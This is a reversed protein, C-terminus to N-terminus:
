TIEGYRQLLQHIFMAVTLSTHTRTKALGSQWPLRDPRLSLTPADVQVGVVKNPSRWLALHSVPPNSYFSLGTGGLLHSSSHTWQDHSIRHIPFNGYLPVGWGDVAVLASVKGGLSQWERAAGICAVVGASFGIFLLAETKTIQKPHISTQLFLCLHKPSYAPLAPSTPLLVNKPCKILGRMFDDTLSPSHIGPAIVTVM